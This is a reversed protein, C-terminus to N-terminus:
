IIFCNVQVVDQPKCKWSYAGHLRSACPLKVFVAHGDCLSSPVGSAFTSGVLSVQFVQSKTCLSLFFVSKRLEGPRDRPKAARATERTAREMPQQHWGSQKSCSKPRSRNGAFPQDSGTWVRKRQGAPLEFAGNRSRNGTSLVSLFVTTFKNRKM